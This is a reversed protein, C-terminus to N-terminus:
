CLGHCGTRIVRVRDSLSNEAVVADFREAIELSCKAVCGPGACVRVECARATAPAAPATM